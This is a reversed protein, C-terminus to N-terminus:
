ILSLIMQGFSFEWAPSGYTAKAKVTWNPFREGVKKGAEQMSLAAATLIKQNKAILRDAEETIFNKPQDDMEVNSPPLWVEAVEMLLLEVNEKPLGANDLDDLVKEAFISGDYGVLVKLNESM